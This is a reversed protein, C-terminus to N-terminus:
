LVPTRDLSTRISVVGTTGAGSKTVATLVLLRSSGDEPVATISTSVALSGGGFTITWGATGASWTQLAGTHDYGSLRLAITNDLVTTVVGKVATGAFDISNVSGLTGRSYETTGVSSASPTPSASALKYTGTQTLGSALNYNGFTYEQDPFVNKALLTLNLTEFLLDAFNASVRLAIPNNALYADLDVYNTETTPDISALIQTMVANILAGASFTFNGYDSEFYRLQGLLLIINSAVNTVTLRVYYLDESDVSTALITTLDNAVWDTPATWSIQGSQIFGGTTDTLSLVTWATGNWYEVGVTAVLGNVSQLWCQLNNFREDSGCYFKPAQSAEIALPFNALTATGRTINTYTASLFKFVRLFDNRNGFVADVVDAANLIEGTSVESDPINLRTALDYFNGQSGTRHNLDVADSLNKYMVGLRDSVKSFFSSSVASM